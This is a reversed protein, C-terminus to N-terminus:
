NWGQQAFIADVSDLYKNVAIPPTARNISQFATPASKVGILMDGNHDKILLFERRALSLTRTTVQRNADVLSLHAFMDNGSGSLVMEAYQVYGSNSGVVPLASWISSNDASVAFYAGLINQTDAASTIPGTSPFRSSAFQDIIMQYAASNGVQSLDIGGQVAFNRDGLTSGAPNDVVLNHENPGPADILFKPTKYSVQYNGPGLGKFSYSGDALTMQTQPAIAVGQATTGTLLVKVGGLRRENSDLRGDADDDSFVKGEIISPVFEQITVNVIGTATGGAGDSLTYEFSAAGAFGSNPTYTITADANLVVQGNTNATATVASVSLLQASENAPGASDNATLTSAPIILPIDRFGTVSDPNAIPPDNVAAVNVNITGTATGGEGDSITYTFTDAGNFDAAPRYSIVGAALTVSGGNASTASVGTVTLTQTAEDTATAPGPSDNFLVNGAVIATNDAPITLTTDETGSFTDDRAIPNDNVPVVTVNVTATASLPPVGNDIATYTFLFPGNFDPAPTYVVTDGPGIAVSGGGVTLATVATITLTQAASGSDEGPGASDNALLTAFPLSLVTDENTSATDNTLVPADNVPTITVVVTGTSDVGLNSTDNMSYTFSDTGSFNPDNPTYVLVEYNPSAPDTSQRAVSGHTGNSFSKLFPTSSPNTSDNALVAITATGGEAITSADRRALPLVGPAVEVTVTATDTLGGNDTITYTFSDIGLFTAEPTYSVAQGGAEITVTGGNATTLTSTATPGLGTIRIADSTENAPGANDAGNGNNALLNLSNGSSGEDVGLSDDFANPADNVATVTITVTAPASTLGTSDRAVYVVRDTGFFDAPPIYTTGNLSGVTIGPITAVSDITLTRPSTVTDNALINAGLALSNDELTSVSDDVAVPSTPDSNVTVTFPMGFNIVDNPIVVRSGFVLNESGLREPGNPTFTVDGPTIATFDISYFPIAGDPDLSRSRDQFAKVENFYEVDPSSLTLSTTGATLSFQDVPLGVVGAGRNVPNLGLGSGQIATVMASAVEDYSLADDPQAPNLARLPIAISGAEVAATGTVDFEFTASGSATTLTFRQGDAVSPSRTGGIQIGGGQIAGQDNTFEDDFNVGSFFTTPRVFQVVDLDSVGLDHAAAFVGNFRSYQPDSPDTITRASAPRVDKVFVNVRFTDGVNVTNGSVPTGSPTTIQYSYSIFTGVPDEGEANLRNIIMLADLPSLYNDRNVDLLNKVGSEEEGEAFSRAGTENLANIVLLSDLPSVNFDLNVDEAIFYNHNSALDAALLRRGELAEVRLGRSRQQREGDMTRRQGSKSRGLLKGIQKKM